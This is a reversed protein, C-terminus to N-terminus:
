QGMFSGPGPQELELPPNLVILDGVRLDSELVQSDTDSSAGLVVPVVELQGGRLVYVIREGDRVRVARNPVLLVDEIQEVVINVAATMGPRV